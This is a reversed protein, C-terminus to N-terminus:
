MGLDVGDLPGFDDAAQPETFEVNQDADVQQALSQVQGLHREHRNEVGVLLTEQPGGARENLGHAARRAMEVAAGHEVGVGLAASSLRNPSSSPRPRRAGATTPNEPSRPVPFVVRM